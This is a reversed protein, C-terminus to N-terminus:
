NLAIEIDKPNNTQSYYGSGTVDISTDYEVVNNQVDDNNYTMIYNDNYDNWLKECNQDQCKDIFCDKTNMFNFLANNLCLDYYEKSGEYKNYVLFIRPHNAYESKISPELKELNLLYEIVESKAFSEDSLKDEYYKLNKNAEEIFLKVNGEKNYRLYLNNNCINEHNLIFGYIDEIDSKVLAEKILLDYVGINLSDDSIYIFKLITDETNLCGELFTKDMLNVKIEGLAVDYFKQNLSGLEKYFGDWSDENEEKIEKAYEKLFSVAEDQQNLKVLSLFKFYNIEYEFDYNEENFKELYDNCLGLTKEYSEESLYIIIM